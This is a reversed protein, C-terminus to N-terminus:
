HLRHIGHARFGMRSTAGARFRGVGGVEIGEVNELPHPLEAEEDSDIVYDSTMFAAAARFFSPPGCGSVRDDPRPASHCKGPWPGDWVGKGLIPLFCRM